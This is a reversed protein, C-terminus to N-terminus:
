AAAKASAQTMELSIASKEIKLKGGGETEIVVATDKMETIKGHIGGSTIIQDGKKLESWFKKQAKGKRMQPLIMFFYMVVFMLLIMIMNMSGNGGKTPAMLIIEYM